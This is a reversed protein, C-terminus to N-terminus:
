RVNMDVTEYEDWNDTVNGFDDTKTKKKNDDVIFVPPKDYALLMWECEEKSMPAQPCWSWGNYKPKSKKKDGDWYFEHATYYVDTENPDKYYHKITRYHWKM